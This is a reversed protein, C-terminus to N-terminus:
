EFTMIWRYRIFHYVFFSHGYMMFPILLIRFYYPYKLISFTLFSMALVDDSGVGVFIRSCDIKYLDALAEILIGSDPDPYLRLEEVEFKRLAEVVKPSPPYPNENTNLKIIDERDPQEGPIYPIVKRVYKEWESM